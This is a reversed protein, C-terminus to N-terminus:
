MNCNCKPGAWQKLVNKFHSLSTINRIDDPLQNWLHCGNYLFSRKGYSVTKFVPLELLRSKRMDYKNEKVNFMKSMFSPNLNNLCKFIEIAMYKLRQLTLSPIKIKHLLETYNSLKDDTVFRLACKQINEM